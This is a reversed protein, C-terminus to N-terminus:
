LENWTMCCLMLNPMRFQNLLSIVASIAHSHPQGDDDVSVTVAVLKSGVTKCEGHRM